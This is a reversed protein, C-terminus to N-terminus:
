ESGDKENSLVSAIWQEIEVAFHKWTPLGLGEIADRYAANSAPDALTRVAEAVSEATVERLRVQGAASLGDLAPLDDSVVVPCGAALAELPPLGYGEADSVFVMASSRALAGAVEDDSASASWTLQRTRSYQRLREILANDPGPPGIVILRYDCGAAWLREFADLVLPHRKRPEITGVVTFIPAAQAQTPVAKLGDAGLRMVAAHRVRRRAIRSEFTRRISSSIFAVNDSRSVTDNYRILPIEREVDLRFFEPHTLPLADYYLFFPMTRRSGILGKAVAVNDTRLSPEPLLYADFSSEINRNSITGTSTRRLGSRVFSSREHISLARCDHFTSRIISALESIPGTVYFGRDLFGFRAEIKAESWEKALHQLVRQVGSSAPWSVYQTVDVLLRPRVAASL